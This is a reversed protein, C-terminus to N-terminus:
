AAEEQRKEAIGNLVRVFGTPVGNLVRVFGSVPNMMTGLLKALLEERSPLSSLAKVGNEDIAKGDLVGGIVKLPEVGKATESVAKALAVPEPGWAIGVPGGLFQDVDSFSTDATARRILTNKAVRYSGGAERIANRLKDAQAVTMGRYQVVLLVSTEQLASNLEAVLQAKGERNM